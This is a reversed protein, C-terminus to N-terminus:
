PSQPTEPQKLAFGAGPKRTRAVQAVIVIIALAAGALDTYLGPKIMCLAAAVLLVREWLAAYAIFYGHLGAALLLIGITATISAGIIAPWDGIMLIAAPGAALAPDLEGALTGYATTLVLARATIGHLRWRRSAAVAAALAAAPNRPMTPFPGFGTVLLHPVTM